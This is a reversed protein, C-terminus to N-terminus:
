EEIKPLSLYGDNEIIMELDRATGHVVLGDKAKIVLCGDTQVILCGKRRYVVGTDTLRVFIGSGHEYGLVVAGGLQRVEEQNRFDNAGIELYIDEIQMLVPEINEPINEPDDVKQFFHNSDCVIADKTQFLSGGTSCSVHVNNQDSVFDGLLLKGTEDPITAAVINKGECHINGKTLQWGWYPVKLTCGLLSLMAQPGELVFLNNKEKGPIYEFSGGQEFVLNVGNRVVSQQDSAYVFTGEGKILCMGAEWEIFGCEFRYTDNIKFIVNEFAITGSSDVCSINTEHADEIVVNKFTIRANKGVVIRGTEGLKISHWNGEVVTKGNVLYDQTIQWTADLNVRTIGNFFDGISGGHAVTGISVLFLATIGTKIMTCM